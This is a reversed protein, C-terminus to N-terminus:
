FCIRCAEKKLVMEGIILSNLPIVMEYTMVRGDDYVIDGGILNLAHWLVRPYVYPHSIKKLFFFLNGSLLGM